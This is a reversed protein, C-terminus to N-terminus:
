DARIYTKFERNLWGALFKIQTPDNACIHATYLNCEHMFAVRLLEPKCNEVAAATAPGMLGDVVPTQRDGRMNNCAKQLLKVSKRPGSVISRALLQCLLRQRATDVTFIKDFGPQLYYKTYYRQYVEGEWADLKKRLKPQAYREDIAETRLDKYLKEHDEKTQAIDQLYAEWEKITGKFGFGERTMGAMTAGGRDGSVKHYNYMGGELADIIWCLMNQVTRKQDKHDVAMPKNEKDGDFFETMRIVGFPTQYNYRRM